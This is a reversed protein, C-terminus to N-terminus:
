ISSICIQTRSAMLATPRKYVRVDDVWGKYFANGDPLVRGIVLNGSSALYDNQAIDQAVQVGDRYITRRNASYDYTCAWHHWNTDTYSIPADLDNDGWFGCTFANTDRFGIHLGM